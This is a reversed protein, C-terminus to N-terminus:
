QDGRKAKMVRGFGDIADKMGAKAVERSGTLCGWAVCGVGLALPIVAVTSQERLLLVSGLVTLGIGFLVLFAGTVTAARKAQWRDPPMQRKLQQTHSM